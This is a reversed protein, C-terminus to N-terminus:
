KCICTKNDLSLNYHTPCLCKHTTSLKEIIGPLAICIHSCNGNNIACANSGSQRSAHFVLLATVSELRNHIVTRNAGATKNIREIDGTNWDTWYINDQYHTISFPYVIGQAVLSNRKKSRMNYSDIAPTSSDTWYLCDTAHDLTLGNIRGINSLIVQRLTGDLNAREIIGSNGSSESVDTWFM